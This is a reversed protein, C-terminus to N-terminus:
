FTYEIYVGSLININTFNGHVQIVNLIMKKPPLQSFNSDVHVNVV